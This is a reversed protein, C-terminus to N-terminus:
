RHQGLSLSSRITASPQGATPGARTGRREFVACRGVGLRVAGSCQVLAFPCQRRVCVSVGSGRTGSGSGDGTGCGIEVGCQVWVWESGGEEWTSLTREARKGSLLNHSREITHSREGLHHGVAMKKVGSESDYM